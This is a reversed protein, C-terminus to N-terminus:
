AHWPPTGSDQTPAPPTAVPQAPSNMPPQSNSVDAGRSLYKAIAQQLDLPLVKFDPMDVISKGFTLYYKIKDVIEEASGFDLLDLLVEPPLPTGANAMLTATEMIVKKKATQTWAIQNEIEVKLTRNPNIVIVDSPLEKGEHTQKYIDAGRKGIYRIHESEGNEKKHRAYQIDLTDYAVMEILTETLEVVFDDFNDNQVTLSERDSEKLSEIAGWAEVGQPVDASSTLSIGMEKIDSETRNLVEMIVSSLQSEEMMEPRVRKWRVIEGDDTTYVKGDEGKQVLMRGTDLKRAKQELKSAIIDYIRNSPMMDEMVSTEYAEDGWVFLAIPLRSLPIIQEGIKTDHIYSVIRCRRDMQEEDVDQGEADSEENPYGGDTVEAVKNDGNETSYKEKPVLILEYLEDVLINDKDAKGYKQVMLDEKYTSSSYKGDGITEEIKDLAETDYFSNERLDKLTKSVHKVFIPYDSMCTITPYCSGDFADLIEIKYRGNGENIIQVFCHSQVGAIRVIKKFYRKVKLVEDWIYRIVKAQGEAQEEEMKQSIPDLLGIVDMDPYVVPKRQSKLITNRMNQVQKKAKPIERVTRNKPMAVNQWNGLDDRKGFSFHKGDYFASAIYWRPEFMIKFGKLTDIKGKDRTRQEEDTETVAEKKTVDEEKDM